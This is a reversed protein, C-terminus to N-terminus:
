NTRTPDKSLSIKKRQEYFTNIGSGFQENRETKALFNRLRKKFEAPRKRAHHIYQIRIRQYAPPFRRFNRWAGGSAKLAKLIDPPITYADESLEGLSALIDKRVKGGAILRRLREKNTQSYPRGPKRPSFRQAFREDDLKRVTSDIWGFCLAEEVADSCAIRPKGTAKRYYILWIDKASKYHKRLWARWMKRDTAYLTETVKM